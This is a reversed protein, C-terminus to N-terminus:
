GIPGSQWICVGGHPPPVPDPVNQLTLPTQFAEYVAAKM